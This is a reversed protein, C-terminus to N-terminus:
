INITGFSQAEKSTQREPIINPEQSIPNQELSKNEEEIGIKREEPKLTVPESEKLIKEKNKEANRPEPSLSYPKCLEGEGSNDREERENRLVM